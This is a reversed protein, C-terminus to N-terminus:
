LDLCEKGAGPAVPLPERGFARPFPDPLAEGPQLARLWRDLDAERKGVVPRPREEERQQAAAPRPRVGHRAGVGRAGTLKTTMSSPRRSIRAASVRTAYASTKPEAALPRAPGRESTSTASPRAGPVVSSM